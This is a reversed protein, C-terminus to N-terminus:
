PFYPQWNRASSDRRYLVPKLPHSGGEVREIIRRLEAIGAESAADCFALIDRAPIAAVFGNPALHALENDWLSDLLILSAEFNGDFIVAFAAGAKRLNAGREAFMNSLSGVAIQHLQAQDIGAGTLHCRQVYEFRDGEDVLYAVLLGNNLNTIILERDDDLVVDAKADPLNAKLYAIARHCFSAAGDADTKETGM